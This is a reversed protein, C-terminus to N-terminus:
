FVHSSDRVLSNNIYASHHGRLVKPVNLRLRVTAWDILEKNSELEEVLSKM